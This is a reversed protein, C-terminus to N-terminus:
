ALDRDEFMALGLLLAITTYLACYLAAMGLYALPVVAGAAVAAQINFNDLVPLVTAIFQGAFRVIEFKGVSSNVLMPVLHGLVYVTACVILNALMPLRTSIAVSIAAMVITELFALVLGPVIRIMELHCLQWTPETKATERADYVVKFSVTILFLAGLVIFLVLVPGLVGLFKGLVFQRRKVPKSLVSLATRGEVEESVSVSASWVAVIMALVMILTLGSDKLMKVDDGFTNYPVFIFALLSFAGLALAVYFLPQAMSEKATVLAIASIKPFVLRGLLYFAVLAVLSGAFWPVARVEPFEIDADASIRVKAPEPGVNTAVWRTIASEDPVPRRDKEGIAPRQWVAPNGPSVRIALDQSLNSMINTVITVPQDSEATFGNLELIRVDLRPSLENLNVDRSSPPVEVEVSVPGVVSIRSVAALLSGYPLGPVLFIGAVAFASMAACLYFVPLLVGERVGTVAAAAARPALLLLVLYGLALVIMGIAVGVSVLWLPTLWTVLLGFLLLPSSLM